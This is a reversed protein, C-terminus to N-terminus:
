RTVFTGAVSDRTFRRVRLLRTFFYRFPSSLSTPHVGRRPPPPPSSATHARLPHSLIFLFPFFLLRERDRERSQHRPLNKVVCDGALKQGHYFDTPSVVGLWLDAFLHTLAVGPDPPGTVLMSGVGDMRNPVLRTDWSVRM